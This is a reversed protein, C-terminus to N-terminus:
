MNNILMNQFEVKTYGTLEACCLIVFAYFFFNIKTWNNTGRYLLMLMLVENYIFRLKHTVKIIRYHTLYCACKSM